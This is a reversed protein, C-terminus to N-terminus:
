LRRCQDEKNGQVVNRGGTPAPRNSKCQLNGDVRNATVVSAARNSFLQIDGGVTNRELVSRKGQKLQISGEVTSDLVSVLTAGGGAQVNGDVRARSAYLTANRSVLVNGDIRTRNLRCTAGSPVRVNDDVSIAGLTGRCIRDGASAEAVVVAALVGLTALAGSWKIGM